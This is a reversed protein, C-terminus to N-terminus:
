RDEILLLEPLIHVLTYCMRQFTASLSQQEPCNRGRARRREETTAQSKWKLVALWGGVAVVLTDFIM